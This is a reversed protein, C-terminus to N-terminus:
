FIFHQKFLSFSKIFVKANSSDTNAWDSDTYIIGGRFNLEIFCILEKSLWYHVGPRKQAALFHMIVPIVARLKKQHTKSNKKTFYINAHHFIYINKNTKPQIQKISLGAVILHNKNCIYHLCQYSWNLHDRHAKNIKEWVEFVNQKAQNGHLFNGTTKKKKRANSM